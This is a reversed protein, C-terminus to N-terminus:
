PHPDHDLSRFLDPWQETPSLNERSLEARVANLGPRSPQRLCCHKYKRGSNCPCPQNRGPPPTANRITGVSPVAEPAPDKTPAPAPQLSALKLVTTAARLQVSPSAGPDSLIHRIRDLATAALDQVTDFLTAQLWAQGDQLAQAFRPDQRIWNYITSRHLDHSRAAASITEGALIAALVQTQLTSLENPDLTPM